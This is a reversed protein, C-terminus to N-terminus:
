AKEELKWVRDRLKRNEEVFSELQGRLTALGDESTRGERINAMADWALRRCRGDNASAHIRGLVPLARPDRLAGLANIAAVQVRFGPDEALEILREVAPLRAAEVEEGLRALAACAPARARGPVEPRTQALLVDLVAIDRLAGLGEIARARLIEAWSTRGLLAECRARAAPARLRGLGRAIEGEVHASPDEPLASLAAVVDPRRVTALAAVIRRRAKPNQESLAEILAATAHDGGRAALLDACEGRVAWYPDSSLADVLAEVAEISRDEGLARAARIRGVVNPDSELAAILMSRPGELKIDALVQFDPDVRVLEPAEDCAFVYTRERAALKLTVRQDGFALPLGIHFVSSVGDGEQTQKVNVTLQGDGHSVSVTLAPHGAAWIWQAFFRDLNKGTADELARQFDRTHVTGYRHRALYLRVGAWFAEDGLQHRLTHIVLGAKEYLHRDFMDIPAKFQYSVIPRRYRASDEAFYTTMQEFLHWDAEEVGRDERAWIHETYTAWGENLWGQSWDVCTLLDGFWQHALEHVVLDDFDQDKAQEEDTLLIDFMTTAAVNEMGGFIFDHVIAQDYRPWPYEGYISSLYAIMKPTKGFSRRTLAESTGKPVIYRISRGDHDDEYVDAKMVVVTVLYAPMPEAQDWRWTDGTRGVFRGNGVVTYGAPATIAFSWPHKVSPHDFCPFL